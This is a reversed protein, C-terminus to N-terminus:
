HIYLYLAEDESDSDEIPSFTPVYVPSPSANLPPTLIEEETEESGTKKSNNM